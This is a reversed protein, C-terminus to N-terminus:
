RYVYKSNLFYRFITALTLGIINGSVNDATSSSFGLFYRSVWICTSAILIGGLQVIAFIIVQRTTAFIYERTAFTWIKHLYFALATVFIGSIIKSIVPELGIRTLTLINFLVVDLAFIFVGVTLYRAPLGTRTKFDLRQKTPEM